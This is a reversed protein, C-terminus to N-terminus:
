RSLLTTLRKVFEAPNKLMVGENLLAQDLVVQAMDNVYDADDSEAIKKIVPSDVNIELIPTSEPMDTQGM